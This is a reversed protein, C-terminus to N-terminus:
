LSSLLSVGVPQGAGKLPAGATKWDSGRHLPLLNPFELGELAIHRHLSIGTLPLIRFTTCIQATWRLAIATHSFASLSALQMAKHGAQMGVSGPLFQSMAQWYKGGGLYSSSTVKWPCSSLCPTLISKGVQNELIIKFYIKLAQIFHLCCATHQMYLIYLKILQSM